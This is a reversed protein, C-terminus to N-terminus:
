QWCDGSGVCVPTRTLARYDLRWADGTEPDALVMADADQAAQGWPNDYRLYDSISVEAGAVTLPATWGFTMAGLSPSGYSVDFVPGYEVGAPLDGDARETVTLEAASVAAQFAAFDAFLDGKAGMEVIWVNEAGGEARLEFPQVMGDTATVAPDYVVWEPARWSYLAVYADGLRGFTWNGARVVEDFYDQPFFAHTYPEYASFGDLPAGLVDYQPSYIYIGVNDHQAARPFSATGTWVGPSPDDRWNTTERPPIVPHNTFVAAHTSLTAQWTHHQYGRYGPRYDQVSSLMGTASRWTITDAASLLPQAAFPAFERALEAAAAPGASAILPQIVKLPEFLDAEWLSYKDLVSLTLPVVQWVSQASMAWWVSLYQEDTYSLGGPAVPPQGEVIPELADIFLGLRERSTYTANSTGIRRVLEPPRYSPAVALKVLTSDGHSRWPLDVQEFLLQVLDFCGEDLANTKDKKYSRGHTVGFFASYTNLAYDLLLLDAVITSRARIEADDSFEILAILPNLSHRYYVDSHWENFGYKMRMDTWAIIMERAHVRHEDGTMGTNTFVTDPYMQGALLEAAHFIIQHNESWYWMDDTVGAAQDQTYWYKFGLVADEIKDWAGPVLMPHDKAVHMLTVMKIVGFDSTDALTAVKALMDDFSDAPVVAVPATYGPDRAERALHAIINSLNGPSTQETAFALYSSIRADYWDADVLGDGIPQGPATTVDSSVDQVVTDPTSVDSPEAVGTQGDCAADFLGILILLTPLAYHRRM